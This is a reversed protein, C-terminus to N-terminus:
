GAVPRMDACDSPAAICDAIRDGALISHEVLESTTHAEDVKDIAVVFVSRENQLCELPLLVVQFPRLEEPLGLNPQPEAPVAIDHSRMEHPNEVPLEKNGRIVNRVRRVSAVRELSVHPACTNWFTKQQSPKGLETMAHSMGLKVAHYCM